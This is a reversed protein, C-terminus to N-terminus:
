ELFIRLKKNIGFKKLIKKYAYCYSGFSSLRRCSPVFIGETEMVWRLSSSSLHDDKGYTAWLRQAVLFFNSLVTCSWFSQDVYRDKKLAVRDM